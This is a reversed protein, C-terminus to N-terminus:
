LIKKVDKEVVHRFWDKKLIPEGLKAAIGESILNGKKNISELIIMKESVPSSTTIRRARAEANYERVLDYVMDSAIMATPKEHKVIAQYYREVYDKVKM